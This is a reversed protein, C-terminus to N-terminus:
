NVLIMRKLYILSAKFLLLNIMLKSKNHIIILGYFGIYIMSDIIILTSM